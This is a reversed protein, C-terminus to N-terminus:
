RNGYDASRTPSEAICQLLNRISCEPLYMFVCEVVFLTPLSTDYGHQPRALKNFLQSPSSRLDHGILHYNPMAQREEQTATAPSTTHATTTASSSSGRTDGTSVDGNDKNNKESVEKEPPPLITIAYSADDNDDASDNHAVDCRYTFGDPLVCKPLWERAKQVIVSPHDVEYWRVFKKSRKVMYRLYATDRGSGLIVIQRPEETIKRNLEINTGYHSKDAAAVAAGSSSSSSSQSLPLSMFADIAREMAKVRAHTGRRILPEINDLAPRPGSSSGSNGINGIGTVNKDRRRRDFGGIGCDDDDDDNDNNDRGRRRGKKRGMSASTPGRRRSAGCAMFPLFPDEYYGYNVCSLKSLIAADATSIVSQTFSDDATTPM